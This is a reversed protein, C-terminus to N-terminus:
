KRAAERIFQIVTQQDERTLGASSPLSLATAYLEASFECRFHEAGRQAPSLHMPQWLPRSQVGHAALHRLLARSDMGFGAPEVRITTLWDTSWAYPAERMVSIGEIHDLGERYAAAIERKRALMGELQEFQACGVAAQVNTLRYNYGVQDHVYEPSDEKAQTSLHRVQQALAADNTMVMGGGGCTMVKNGNFSFAAAAGFTGLRRGKYRAGISEACDEILRLRYEGCIELLPDLDVPHGLIHVAVVARVPRGTASNVTVGDRRSCRTQLFERVAEVDIQWYNREPGIFVPIAGAYRAANAAAIFTVDSVLVEDGPRVGCGVLALHLAATGNVVAVAHSAGVYAALESEFREVFPGASSVWGTEVCQELYEIERGALQPVSLPITRM